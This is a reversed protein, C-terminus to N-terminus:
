MAESDEYKKGGGRCDELESDKGVVQKSSHQVRTKVILTNSYEGQQNPTKESM